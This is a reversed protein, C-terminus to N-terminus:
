VERPLFNFYRRPAHTFELTGEVGDERRCVLVFPASFALFEFLDTAEATDWVPGEEADLDAQPQATEIMLRRIGETPDCPDGLPSAAAPPPLYHSM